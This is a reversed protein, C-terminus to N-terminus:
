PRGEKSDVAYANWVRVAEEASLNLEVPAEKTAQQRELQYAHIHEMPIDPWKARVREFPLRKSYVFAGGTAKEKPFAYRMEGPALEVNSFVVIWWESADWPSTDFSM